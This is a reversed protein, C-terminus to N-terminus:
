SVDRLRDPRHHEIAPQPLWTLIRRAWARRRAAVGPQGVPRVQAGATPAAPEPSRPWSAAPEAAASLAEGHMTHALDRFDDLAPDVGVLTVEREM